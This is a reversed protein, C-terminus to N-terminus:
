SAKVKATEHGLVGVTQELTRRSPKGGSEGNVKRFRKRIMNIMQQFWIVNLSNLVINAAGYLVLIPAPVKSAVQLVDLYTQYSMYFGYFLRAGLFSALLCLGNILQLISGTLGIKDQVRLASGDSDSDSSSGSGSGSSSDDKRHSPKPKTSKKAASSKKAEIMVFQHLKQLTNRDLSDIDLEIEEEGGQIAPVSSQIIRVVKELQPGELLNIAESLQKKQEFTFEQPVEPKKKSLSSRKRKEATGKSPRNSLPKPVGKSVSPRHSLPKPMAEPSAKMRKEKKKAEKKQLKSSKIASLQKTFEEISRQLEEIQQDRPDDSDSSSDDIHLNHSYPDPTPERPPKEAWKSDFVRELQRGWDHVATGPPNYTYCNNFMLRVDAEFEDADDYQNTALKKEITSIDMPHKIITPYDPINLAVPDVPLLFPFNLDKYKAKKLERIAVGAFKLQPDGKKGRGFRGGNSDPLEKSPAHIERKPRGDDLGALAASPPREVKLKKAPPHAPDISPSKVAPSAPKETMRKLAKDFAKELNEGLGGVYSERGNFKYCNDFILRVDRVFAEVSEYQNSSLKKEVTGLDMPNKIINPYDPIGLAVPDVPVLFPPADRHKKLMRIISAATKSQEKTLPSQKWSQPVDVSPGAPSPAKQFPNPMGITEPQQKMRSVNKTAEKPPLPNTGEASIPQANTIIPQQDKVDDISMKLPEEQTKVPVFPAEAELSTAVTQSTTEASREHAQTAVDVLMANKDTGQTESTVLPAPMWPESSIETTSTQMQTSAPATVEASSLVQPSPQVDVLLSHVATNAVPNISKTEAVLQHDNVKASSDDDFTLAKDEALSGLMPASDYPLDLVASDSGKHWDSTETHAPVNRLSADVQPTVECSNLANASVGNAHEVPLSSETSELASKQTSYDSTQPPEQVSSPDTQPLTESVIPGKAPAQGEPQEAVYITSNLTPMPGTGFLPSADQGNQAGLDRDGEAKEVSAEQAANTGNSLELGSM